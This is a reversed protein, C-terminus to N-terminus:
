HVCVAQGVVPLGVRGEERDHGEGEEEADHVAVHAVPGHEERDAEECDPLGLIDFMCDGVEVVRAVDHRHHAQECDIDAEEVVVEEGDAEAEESGSPDRVLALMHGSPNDGVCGRRPEVGQVLAASSWVGETHVRRPVAGLVLKDVHVGHLHLDGDEETYRLHDHTQQQSEGVGDVLAARHVKEELAHGHHHKHDTEEAKHVVHDEVLPDIGHRVGGADDVREDRHCHPALVRVGHKPGLQRPDQHRDTHQSDGEHEERLGQDLQPLVLLLNGLMRGTATAAAASMAVASVVRGHHVLFCAAQDTVLGLLLLEVEALHADVLDDLRDLVHQARDGVGRRVEPQPGEREGVLLQGSDEEAHRNESAHRRGERQIDDADVEPERDPETDGEGDEQTHVHELAEQVHQTQM